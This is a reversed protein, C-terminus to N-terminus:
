KYADLIEELTMIVFEANSLDKNTLAYIADKHSVILIHSLSPQDKYLNHLLLIIMLMRKNLTDFSERKIYDPPFDPLFRTEWGPFMQKIEEKSKRTNCIHGDGLCELLNDHLYLEGVDCEEFLEEATQICRTLPSSWISLIHYDRLKKATERAQSIGKPTLHADKYKTDRFASEGKEHFAVNHDAEGHRVFIFKPAM